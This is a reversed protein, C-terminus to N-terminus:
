EAQAKRLAKDFLPKLISRLASSRRIFWAVQRGIALYVDMVANGLMTERFPGNLWARVLHTRPDDVGYIAEAIWCGGAKAIGSAGTGAAQLIPDLIDTFPDYSANIAATNAQTLPAVDALATNSAGTETNTLGELGSIGQQQQESKLKANAGRVGLLSKSLQEGAGRSADSVARAAGGANGTRAALLGGQGVAGAQTGGATQMAGTEMSAEDAPSFGQPNAVENELTPAVDGFVQNANGMFANANSNSQGAAGSAQPNGRAM